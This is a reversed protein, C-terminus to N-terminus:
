QDRESLPESRARLRRTDRGLRQRAQAECGRWAGNIWRRGDGGHLSPGASGRADRPLSTEGPQAAVTLADLHSMGDRKV